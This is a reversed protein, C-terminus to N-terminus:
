RAVTGLAMWFLFKAGSVINYGWILVDFTGIVAVIWFRADM